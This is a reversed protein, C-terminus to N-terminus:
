YEIIILPENFEVLHGNEVLIAKVTGSIDSEIQNMMKMAEIICLTDGVSIKKGIEIFVQSKPNPTLYFIGVMPSRIIHTNANTMKQNELKSLEIQTLESHYPKVTNQSNIPSSINSFQQQNETNDINKPIRSISISETQESITLKSINYKETLEILKKIKRIDM